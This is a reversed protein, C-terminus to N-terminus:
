KMGELMQRVQLLEKRSDPWLTFSDDGMAASILMRTRLAPRRTGADADRVTSYHLGAREALQEITLGRRARAARLKTAM